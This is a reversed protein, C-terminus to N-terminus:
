LLDDGTDHGNDDYAEPPVLLDYALDEALRRIEERAAPDARRVLDRIFVYAEEWPLLNAMAEAAAAAIAPDADLCGAEIRDRMAGIRLWGASRIAEIRVAPEPDDFLASVADSWRDDRSAGMAYAAGARADPHPHRAFREIWTTVEREPLPGLAELARRRVEMEEQEDRLHRLLLRRVEVYRQTSVDALAEPNVTGGVNNGEEELGAARGEHLIRGLAAMCQGRVPAQEDSGAIWILRDTVIDDDFAHWGAAAAQMRIEPDPHDLGALLIRRTREPDARGDIVDDIDRLFREREPNGM